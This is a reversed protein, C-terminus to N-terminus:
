SILRYWVISREFREQLSTLINGDSSGVCRANEDTLSRAIKATRRRKAGIVLRFVKAADLLLVVTIRGIGVTRLLGAPCFATEVIYRDSM